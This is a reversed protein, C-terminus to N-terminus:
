GKDQASTPIELWGSSYILGILVWVLKEYQVTSAFGYIVQVSFSFTLAIALQFEPSNKDGSFLKLGRWLRHYTALLALLLLALGIIGLDVLFALYISHPGTPGALSRDLGRIEYQYAPYYRRFNDLGVGLIPHDEFIKFGVRYIVSRSIVMSGGSVDEMDTNIFTLLTPMLTKLRSTVNESISYMGAMLLGLLMASLLWARGAPTRLTLWAEALLVLVLLVIATRSITAITAGTALVIYAMGLIRWAKHSPSRVLYFAIPIITVLISATNNLNGSIDSGARGTFTVRNTYSQAITFCAALLGGFLLMKVM